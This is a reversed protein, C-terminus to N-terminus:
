CKKIGYPCVHTHVGDILLIVEAGLQRHSYDIDGQEAPPLVLAEPLISAVEAKALTPGVFIVTKKSM